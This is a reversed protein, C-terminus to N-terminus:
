RVIPGRAAPPSVAPKGVFFTGNYAPGGTGLAIAPTRSRAVGEMSAALSGAGCAPSCSWASGALYRVDLTLLKDAKARVRMAFPVFAADWPAGPQLRAHMNGTLVLTYGTGPWAALFNSAMAAERDDGASGEAQDFASVQRVRGATTERRLMRLLSLMAQSSRGDEIKWQAGQLLTKEDIRGALFGDLRASESAMMELFVAPREGRAAFERVCAGFFRPAQVTGHYEGFLVVGGDPLARKLEQYCGASAGASACLLLAAILPARM